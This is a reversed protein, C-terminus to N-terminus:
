VSEMHLRSMGSPQRVFLTKCNVEFQSDTAAELSRAQEVAIHQLVEAGEPRERQREGIGEGKVREKLDPGSVHITNGFYRLETCGPKNIGVLKKGM